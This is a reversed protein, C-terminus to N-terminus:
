RPGGRVRHPQGLFLLEGEDVGEIVILDDGALARDREFQQRRVRVELREDDGDAAAAQDGAIRDRRFRDFRADLHDAHLRLAIGAQM